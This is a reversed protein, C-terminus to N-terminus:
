SNNTLFDMPSLWKKPAIWGLGDAALCSYEMRGQWSGVAIEQEQGRM